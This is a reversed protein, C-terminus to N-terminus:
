HMAVAIEYSANAAAETKGLQYKIVDGLSVIGILRGDELVPLHRVRHRTMLRMAHKLSDDPSITVIQHRVVDRVEMALAHGGNRALARIIDRESLLAAIEGAITVVLTGVQAAHMRNAASALTATLPITVVGARKTNLIARITM